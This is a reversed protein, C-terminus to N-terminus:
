KARVTMTHQGINIQEFCRAPWITVYYEVGEDLELGTDVRTGPCSASARIAPGWTSEQGIVKYLDPALMVIDVPKFQYTSPQGPELPVTDPVPTMGDEEYVLWNDIEERLPFNFLHLGVTINPCDMAIWRSQTTVPNDTLYLTERGDAAGCIFDRQFTM